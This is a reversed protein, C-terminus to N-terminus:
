HKITASDKKMKHHHMTSDSKNSAKHTSDSSMKKHKTKDQQFPSAAHVSVAGAFLFMALILKKM